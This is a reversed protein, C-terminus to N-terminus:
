IGRERQLAPRGPEVADGDASGSRRPHLPAHGGPSIACERKPRTRRLLSRRSSATADLRKQTVDAPDIPLSDPDPTDEASRNPSAPAPDTTM